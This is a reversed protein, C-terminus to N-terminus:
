GRGGVAQIYLTTAIARIDASDLTFPRQIEAAFKEAAQAARLAACLCTYYTTSGVMDPTMGNASAQAPPPRQSAM